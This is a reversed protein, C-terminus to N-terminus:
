TKEECLKKKGKKVSLTKYRKKRHEGGGLNQIPRPSGGKGGGDNNTTSPKRGERRSKKGAGEM